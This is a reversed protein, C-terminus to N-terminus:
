GGGLEKAIYAYNNKIEVNMASGGFGNWSFVSAAADASSQTTRTKVMM